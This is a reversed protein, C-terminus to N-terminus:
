KLGLAKRYAPDALMATAAAKAGAPSWRRDCNRYFGHWDVTAFRDRLDIV